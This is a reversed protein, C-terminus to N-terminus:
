QSRDSGSVAADTRTMEDGTMPDEAEILPGNWSGLGAGERM